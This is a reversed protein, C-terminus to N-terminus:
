ATSHVPSARGGRTVRLTLRSHSFGKPGERSILLEPRPAVNVYRLRRNPTESHSEPFPL